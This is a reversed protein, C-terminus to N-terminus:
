SFNQMWTDSLYNVQVTSCLEEPNREFESQIGLRRRAVGSCKVFAPGSRKEDCFVCQNLWDYDHADEVTNSKAIGTLISSLCTWMCHKATNKMNEAWCTTCSRTFGIEKELCEVLEEDKGFIAQISCQKAQDAVTKRTEVFRQIDSPNSCEGCSGCHAVTYGAQVAKEASEFTEYSGTPDFACVADTVFNYSTDPAMAAQKNEVYAGLLVVLVGIEVVSVISWCGQTVRRWRTPKQRPSSNTSITSDVSGISCDDCDEVNKMKTDKPVTCQTIEDDSLGRKEPKTELKSLSTAIDVAFSQNMISARTESHCSESEDGQCDDAEEEESAEITTATILRPRDSCQQKSAQLDVETWRELSVSQTLIWTVFWLCPSVIAIPSNPGLVCQGSCDKSVMSSFAHVNSNAETHELDDNTLEDCM